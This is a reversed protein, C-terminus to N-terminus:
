LDTEKSEAARNVYLLPVRHLESALYILNIANIIQNTVGGGSRTLITQKTRVM